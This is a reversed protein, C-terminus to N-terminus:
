VRKEYEDQVYNNIYDDNILIEYGMDGHDFSKADEFTNYDTWQKFRSIDHLLAGILSLRKLKLDTVDETIKDARDVVRFTHNYKRNIFGISMDFNHAYKKFEEIEREIM